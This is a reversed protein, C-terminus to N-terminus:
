VWHKTLECIRQILAIGLHTPDEMSTLLEVHEHLWMHGYGDWFFAKHFHKGWNLVWRIQFSFYGYAEANFWVLLNDKCFSTKETM